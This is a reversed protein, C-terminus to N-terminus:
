FQERWIPDNLPNPSKAAREIRAPAPADIPKAAGTKAAQDILEARNQQPQDVDIKGM